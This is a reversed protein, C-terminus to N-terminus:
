TQTKYSEEKELNQGGGNPDVGDTGKGEWCGYKGMTEVHGKRRMNWDLSIEEIYFKEEIRAGGELSPGKSGGLNEEERNM